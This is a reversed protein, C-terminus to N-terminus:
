VRRPKTWKLYGLRISVCKPRKPCGLCVIATRGHHRMGCEYFQIRYPLFLTNLESLFASIDADNLAPWTTSSNLCDHFQMPIWKLSAGYRDTAIQSVDFAQRAERTRTLFEIQEPTPNTGCDQAVLQTHSFTVIGCFLLTKLLHIM